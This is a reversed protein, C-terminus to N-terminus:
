SFHKEVHEKKEEMTLKQPFEWYCMPCERIEDNATTTTKATTATTVSPSEEEHDDEQEEDVDESEDQTQQQQLEYSNRLLTVLAEENLGTENSLTTPNSKPVTSSHSNVKMVMRELAAYKRYLTKYEDAGTLLRETLEQNKDQLEVQFFFNKNEWHKILRFYKRNARQM